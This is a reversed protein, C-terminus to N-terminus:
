EPMDLVDRVKRRLSDPTIPKQLFSIGPDLVGHQVISDEAYGSVYLVRMRPRMPALRAALDRGSMRPMVVDTLLLHIEGEYQECVLFAEGGNQADLVNYGGRMLLARTMVRVQEEDEVLLITETGRLSAPEPLLPRVDVARDTRPLLVEFTTGNGPDSRLRIHGRSQKVIGFVTSLGLGTGKGKEKTTFFPEFVRARTADSMGIGTDTIALMVYSGACVDFHEAVYDAGLEVNSTSLNLKGGRPMADRANVVLNMVIQEVQSPDAHVRGLTPALALSLEIDEGLVRRLMKELGCAVQGLDLVRPQLMQQRSFALLQQTLETAREGARYIEKLDDAVPSAPDLQDLVLVAYSLVVSLLNNFDHAVGGALVGIAEMKQAQRLQEEVRRMQSESKRQDTLDRAIKSAGVVNGAADRIPSVTLSVEVVSSDKRVRKTEFPEILEGKLIRELIRREDGRLEPPVLTSIDKGIVEAATWQYLREAGKNWSTILGALNKSLIADDSSEVIAALRAHREFSRKQETMDRLVSLHLGPVINATARFGLDLRAGDPRILTFEGEAREDRLFQQWAAEADLGPECFEEVTRGLLKERPLGFLECAAPNADVYRGRDDALIMADLAGEFVARLLRRGQGLPGMSSAPSAPAEQGNGTARSSPAAIEREIEASHPGSTVFGPGSGHRGDRKHM